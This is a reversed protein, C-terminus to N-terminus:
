KGLQKSMERVGVATEALQRTLSGGYDEEEDVVAALVPDTSTYEPYHVGFAQDKPQRQLSKSVGVNGARNTHSQKTSLWDALSAGKDLHSHVFCPSHQAPM